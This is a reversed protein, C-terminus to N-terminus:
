KKAAADADEKGAKAAAAKAAAEEKKPDVAKPPKGKIQVKVYFTFDKDYTESTYTVQVFHEGITDLSSEMKFDSKKISMNYRKNLTDLIEKADVPAKAVNKNIDSVERLFLLKIDRLKSLFLELSRMDQKKRLEEMDTVINKVAPDTYFLAIGQPVLKNFAYGPKM